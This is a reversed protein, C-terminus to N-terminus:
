LCSGVGLSRVLGRVRVELHFRWGIGLFRFLAKVCIRFDIIKLIYHNRFLQLNSATKLVVGNLVNPFSKAFVQYVVFLVVRRQLSFCVFLVEFANVFWIILFVDIFPIFVLWLVKISTPGSIGRWILCLGLCILDFPQFLFM